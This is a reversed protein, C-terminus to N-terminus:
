GAYVNYGMAQLRIRLETVAQNKKQGEISRTPWAVLTPIYGSSMAEEFKEWSPFATCAKTLSNLTNTM